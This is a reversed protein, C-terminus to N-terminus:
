GSKVNKRWWEVAAAVGEELLREQVRPDMGAGLPKLEEQLIKELQGPPCKKGEAALQRAVARGNRRSM